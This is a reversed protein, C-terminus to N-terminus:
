GRGRNGRLADIPELNATKIATYLTAVTAIVTGLIFYRIVNKINLYFYLRGAIPVDGLKDMDMPIGVTQGYFIILCGVIVAAIGAILGMLGGELLFMRIIENRKVGLAMLNGIEKRREVMSMLMTNLIGIAAILLIFISMVDIMRKRLEVVNVYNAGYDKWTFVSIKEQFNTQRYNDAETELDSHNNLSVAIDTYGEFNLFERAYDIPIYFVNEDIAPNGTYIIGQVELETIQDPKEASQVIISVKDNVKLQLLKALESGVVVSKKELSLYSGETISKERNFVKDEQAPDIAIGTARIEDTGNNISAQFSIRSSYSKVKKDKSLEAEIDQYYNLPYAIPNTMQDIEYDKATIVFDGSSTKIFMDRIQWELGINFGDFVISLLVGLFISIITITTRKKNRLINRLAMKTLM